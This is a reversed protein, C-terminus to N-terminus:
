YLPKSCSASLSLVDVTRKLDNLAMLWTMEGADDDKEERGVEIARAEKGEENAGADCCSSLLHSSTLLTPPICATQLDLGSEDRQIARSYTSAMRTSEETHWDDKDHRM